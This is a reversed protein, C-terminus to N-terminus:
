DSVANKFRELHALKALAKECRKCKPVGEEIRKAAWETRPEHEAYVGCLSETILDGYEKRAEFSKKNVAHLRTAYWNALWEYENEVM